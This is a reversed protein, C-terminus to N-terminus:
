SRANCFRRAMTPPARAKVRPPPRPSNHITLTCNAPKLPTLQNSSHSQGFQGASSAFGTRRPSIRTPRHRFTGFFPRGGVWRIEPARRFKVMWRVFAKLDRAYYAATTAGIRGATQEASLWDVVPMPALDAFTKFRCGSLIAQVHQATQRVHKVTKGKAAVYRCFDALHETLPRRRHEGYPDLMGAQGREGAAELDALMRRAVVKDTALPKRYDKPMGPVGAAYYKAARQRVRKAGPTGNPVRKKTKPDIYRVIWPRVLHAM